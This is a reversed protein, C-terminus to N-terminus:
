KLYVWRWDSRNANSEKIHVGITKKIKIWKLLEEPIRMKSIMGKWFSEEVSLIVKTGLSSLLGSPLSDPEQGAVILCGGYKRAQRALKNIVNDPDQAATAYLGFEDLIFVDVIDDSLGRERLQEWLEELRFLVFMRKEQERLSSLNYRWISARPDFPIPKNKYVGTNVIKELRDIVSKLVDTSDYKMLRELEVGTRVSEVYDAYTEIAKAGLKDLKDLFSPDIKDGRAYKTAELVKRQYAAANKHFIELNTVAKQDSGLFSIQLIRRAYILIEDITPTTKGSTAPLWRTIPGVYKDIPIWWMVKIPDWVIDALQKADDKESKPINLYLRNLAGGDVLMDTSEDAYWSDPDDKYFGHMAYVDMLLNRLVNEQKFGLAMGSGRNLIDIFAEIRKRIGGHLPHPSVKLPNLGYNAQEHFLVESEGAANLDGEGDFVHIRLAVRSTNCMQAICDRLLHSKGSGSMGLFAMHPNVTNDTDWCVPSELGKKRASADFGFQVRM